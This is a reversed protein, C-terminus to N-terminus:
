GLPLQLEMMGMSAHTFDGSRFSCNFTTPRLSCHASLLLSDRTDIKMCFCLFLHRHLRRYLKKRWLNGKEQSTTFSANHFMPCTICRIKTEIICTWTQSRSDVAQQLESASNTLRTRVLTIHLPRTTLDSEWKFYVQETFPM